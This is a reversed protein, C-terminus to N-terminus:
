FVFLLAVGLLIYVAIVASFYGPSQDWFVRRGSWRQRAYVEGRYLAYIVYLLVFVGLARFM